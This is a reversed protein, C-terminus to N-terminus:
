LALPDNVSRTREDMFSINLESQQFSPIGAMNYPINKEENSFRCSMEERWYDLIIKLVRSDRIKTSCSELNGIM